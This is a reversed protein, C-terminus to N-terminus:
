EGDNKDVGKGRGGREEGRGGGREGEGEEGGGGEGEEKRHVWGEVGLIGGDEAEPDLSWTRLATCSLASTWGASYMEMGAWAIM